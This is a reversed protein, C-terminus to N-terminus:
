SGNASGLADELYQVFRYVDYFSCYLPAPAVRIVSPKREDCQLLVPMANGDKNNLYAILLNNFIIWYM